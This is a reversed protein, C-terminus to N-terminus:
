IAQKIAADLGAGAFVLMSRLLDQDTNSPNGPSRKKGGPNDFLGLLESATEYATELIWYSKKCRESEPESPLSKLSKLSLFIEEPYQDAWLVVRSPSFPDDGM